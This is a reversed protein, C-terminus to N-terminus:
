RYSKINSSMHKSERIHIKDSKSGVNAEISPTGRGGEFPDSTDFPDLVGFVGSILSSFCASKTHFEGIKPGLNTVGAGPAPAKSKKNTADV